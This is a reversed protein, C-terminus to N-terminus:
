GGYADEMIMIWRTCYVTEPDLSSLGSKTEGEVALRVQEDLDGALHSAAARPPTKMSGPIKTGNTM